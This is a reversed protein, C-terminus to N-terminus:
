ASGAFSSVPASRAKGIDDGFRFHSTQGLQAPAARWGTARGLQGPKANAARRLRQEHRSSFSRAYKRCIQRRVNRDGHKPRSWGSTRSPPTGADDHPEAAAEVLDHRPRGEHRRRYPSAPRSTARAACSAPMAPSAKKCRCERSSRRRAACSRRRRHRRSWPHAPRPSPPRGGPCCASPEGFGVHFKGVPMATRGLVVDEGCASNSPRGPSGAAILASISLIVSSARLAAASCLVQPEVKLFGGPSLGPLQDVRRTAPAEDDAVGLDRLQM